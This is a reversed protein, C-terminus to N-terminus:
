AARRASRDFKPLPDPVCQSDSGSAPFMRVELCKVKGCRMCTWDGNMATWREHGLLLCGAMRRASSHRMWHRLARAIHAVLNAASTAPRWAVSAAPHISYMHSVVRM